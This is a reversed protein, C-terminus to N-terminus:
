GTSLRDTRRRLIAILSEADVLECVLVGGFGIRDGISLPQPNEDVGIGNLATGNASGHDKISLQDHPGLAISAHLKSINPLRISIDCTRSRGISILDPWPNGPKKRLPAALELSVREDEDAARLQETLRGHATNFDGGTGWLVDAAAPRKLLFHAGHLERFADETLTQADSVFEQLPRMPSANFALPRRM